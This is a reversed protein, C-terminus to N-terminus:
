PAPPREPAHVLFRDPTEIKSLKRLWWFGPRSCCACSPSCSSASRPATRSSSAATSSRWAWCSRGGLGRGRDARQAPHQGAAAMVRQRMDLEERASVALAGLVDRLGPGRLRSNLILAAVVLDASPDDLEDAFQQLADPLPWGPGCGTSWRACTRRPARARRGPDLGPHGAGPRGRRRHHRAAVRDLGALGEVRRM